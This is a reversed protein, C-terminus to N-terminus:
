ILSFLPILLLALVLIEVIPVPFCIRSRYWGLCLWVVWVMCKGLRMFRAPLVLCTQVHEDMTAVNSVDLSVIGGGVFNPTAQFMSEMTTVLGTNFSDAFDVGGNNYASAGQFM